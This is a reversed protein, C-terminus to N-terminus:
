NEAMSKEDHKERERKEADYSAEREVCEFMHKRVQAKPTVRTNVQLGVHDRIQKPELFADNGEKDRFHPGFLQQYIMQRRILEEVNKETIDGVCMNMSTLVICETVPNMMWKGDELEKAPYLEEVNKCKKTSWVLAM